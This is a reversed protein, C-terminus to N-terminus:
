RTAAGESVHKKSRKRGKEQPTGAPWLSGGAWQWVSEYKPPFDSVCKRCGRLHPQRRRRYGYFAGEFSGAFSDYCEMQRGYLTM